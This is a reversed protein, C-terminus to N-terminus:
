AINVVVDKLQTFSNLGEIGRLRGVGSHKYGGTEAESFNKGYMNVWVVGSKINRALNLASSINTTWVAASLGFKTANAIEAAQELTEFRLTSIVPGFIEEQAIRSDVPVDSFMTPEIFYGKSYDGSSLKKGGVLLKANKKGEEVYDLVKTMQSESIIPGVDTESLLGNGVKLKPVLNSVAEKFKDYVRDHVLVRTGTFCIQGASGFMSGTIAGRIAQEFNADDLIINPSKGGLELSLRKMNVSADQMVQSGVDTSGTFSIMDVDPHRTVYRGVSEGGGLVINLVGPPMEKLGQTLLDVFRYVCGATYSAPKVIISNGAALAPALSRALLLLPANWPVIIGVVGIPERLIINMTNPDPSITRGSLNRTMGTYYDFLDLGTSLEIKSDRIVKGCEQTQIRSLDEFNKMIIECITRMTKARLKPDRSWASKEFSNRAADVASNVDEKSSETFESVLENNAPNYRKAVKSASGSLYESNIINRAM